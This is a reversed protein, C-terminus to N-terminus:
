VQYEVGNLCIGGSPFTEMISEWIRVHKWAKRRAVSAGVTYHPEGPLPQKKPTTGFTVTNDVSRTNLGM